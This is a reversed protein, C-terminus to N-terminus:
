IGPVNMETLISTLLITQKAAEEEYFKQAEDIKKQEQVKLEKQYDEYVDVFTKPMEKKRGHFFFLLGKEPAHYREMHEISVIRIGNGNHGIGTKSCEVAYLYRSPEYPNEKRNTEPPKKKLKTRCKDFFVNMDLNYVIGVNCNKCKHHWEDAKEVPASSEIAIEDAVVKSVRKVYSEEKKLYNECKLFGPPMKNNTLRYSHVLSVVWQNFQKQEAAKIQIAYRKAIQPPPSVIEAEWYEKLRGHGKRLIAPLMNAIQKEDNAIIIHNENKTNWLCISKAGVNNYAPLLKYFPDDSM